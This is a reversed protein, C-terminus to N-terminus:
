YSEDIIIPCYSEFFTAKEIWSSKKEGPYSFIIVRKLKPLKELIDKLYTHDSKISHGIVVIEEINTLSIGYESEVDGNAYFLYEREYFYESYKLNDVKDIYIGDGGQPKNIAHFDECLDEYMKDACTIGFDERIARTFALRAREHPKYWRRNEYSALCFPDIQDYGLVIENEHLSGHVYLVNSLYNEITSTYNFNLAITREDLYPQLNRNKQLLTKSIENRLYNMLDNKINAFISNFVEIEKEDMGEDSNVRQYFATTQALVQIEFNNWEEGEVGFSDIYDRYLIFRESGMADTFDRYLTKYNHSLDFGNGIIALRKFM